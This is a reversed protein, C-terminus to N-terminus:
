GFRLNLADLMAQNDAGQAVQLNGFGLQKALKATRQSPVVILCQKLSERGILFKSLNKLAEGSTILIADLPSDLHEALDTNTYSPCARTYIEALDVRAGRARLETELMDRGGQGKVILIRQEEIHQLRTDALLAESDLGSNIESNIGFYDLEQATGQGIAFWSVGIPLQPWYQDIIEGGLRAANRSIFVVTSYLDLNLFHQRLIGYKPQDLDVAEIELLPLSTIKYGATELLEALKKQQDAPRTILVNVM